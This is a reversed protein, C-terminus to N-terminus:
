HSISRDRHTTTAASFTQPAHFPMVGRSPSAKRHPFLTKKQRGV